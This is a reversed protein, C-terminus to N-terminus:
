AKPYGVTQAFQIIQSSSLKLTRALAEGPVSERFVTALGESACYLYVNEAAVGASVAATAIKASDTAGTMKSTDFVYVLNLPATAVFPQGTTTQARLDGAMHFLLRHSRPEYLWVGNAMTIYIDLAYIDRWRPVTRGDSEPRNVGWAAWLLNSLIQNSPVRDSYDRISRRDKLSQMLSKGGETVPPPLEIAQPMQAFAETATAAAITSLIGLNVDRRTTM